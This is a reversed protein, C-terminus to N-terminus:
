VDLDMAKFSAVSEILLGQPTCENHEGPLEYIM